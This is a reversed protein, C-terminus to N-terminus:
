MAPVSGTAAARVGSIVNAATAVYRAVGIDTVSALGAQIRLAGWVLYCITGLLATAKTM